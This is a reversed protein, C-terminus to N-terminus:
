LEGFMALYFIRSEDFIFFEIKRETEDEVQFYFITQGIEDAIKVMDEMKDISIMISSQYALAESLGAMRNGYKKFIKAVEITYDDQKALPKTKFILLLVVLIFSIFLATFLILENFDFGQKQETQKEIVLVESVEGDGSISYIQNNFPIVLEACLPKEVTENNYAARVSVNFLVKIYYDTILEYDDILENILSDYQTFDLQVSREIEINGDGSESTEEPAYEEVKEWIVEAEDDTGLQSVLIVDISTTAEIDAPKDSSTSLMCTVDIYDTFPKIYYGGESLTDEKFVPNDKIHVNYSVVAESQVELTKETIKEYRPFILGRVSLGAALVALCSFVLILLRRVKRKITFM